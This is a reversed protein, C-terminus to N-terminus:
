LRSSLTLQGTTNGLFKSGLTPSILPALNCILFIVSNITSALTIVHSLTPWLTVIGLTNIHGDSVLNEKLISRM